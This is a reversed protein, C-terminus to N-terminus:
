AHYLVLRAEEGTSLTLGETIEGNFFTLNM